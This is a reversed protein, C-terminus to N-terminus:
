RKKHKTGHPNNQLAKEVRKAKEAEKKKEQKRAWSALIWAVTIVIIFGVAMEIYSVITKWRNEEEIKKIEEKGAASTKSINKLSPGTTTDTLATENASDTVVMTSQAFLRTNICVNFFFLVVFCSLTYYKRSNKFKLTIM